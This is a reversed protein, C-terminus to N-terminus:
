PSGVRATRAQAGHGEDTAALAEISLGQAERAERLMRGAGRGGPGAPSAVESGAAPNLENM